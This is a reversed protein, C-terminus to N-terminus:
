QRGGHPVCDICDKANLLQRRSKHSGRRATQREKKGNSRLVGTAGSTRRRTTTDGRSWVNMSRVMRSSARKPGALPRQALELKWWAARRARSPRQPGEATCLPAPRPRALRPVMPCWPVGHFSEKFSHASRAGVVLGRGGGVATREKRKLERVSNRDISAAGDRRGRRGRRGRREGRVVKREKERERENERGAGRRGKKCVGRMRVLFSVGLSGLHGAVQVGSRVGSSLRRRVDYTSCRCFVPGSAVWSSGGGWLWGRCLPTCRSAM